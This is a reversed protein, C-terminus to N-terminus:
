YGGCDDDCDWTIEGSILLPPETDADAYPDSAFPGEVTSPFATALASQLNPVDLYGPADTLTRLAGHLATPGGLALHPTLWPGRGADARAIVWVWAGHSHFGGWDPGDFDETHLLYAAPAPCRGGQHLLLSYRCTPCWAPARPNDPDPNLLRQTEAPDGTQAARLLSTYKGGGTKQAARAKQAATNQRKPM